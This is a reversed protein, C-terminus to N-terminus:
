RLHGGTDHLGEEWCMVHEILFLIGYSIKFDLLPPTRLNVAWNRCNEQVKGM